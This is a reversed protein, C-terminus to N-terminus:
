KFLLLKDSLYKKIIAKQEDTTDSLDMQVGNIIQSIYNWRKTMPAKNIGEIVDAIHVTVELMRDIKVEIDITEMQKIKLMNKIKLYIM